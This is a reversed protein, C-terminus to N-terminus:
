CCGSVVICWKFGISHLFYSIDTFSVVKKGFKSVWLNLFHRFIQVTHRWIFSLRRYWKKGFHLIATKFTEKASLSFRGRPEEKDTKAVPDDFNWTNTSSEAQHEIEIDSKWFKLALKGRRANSGIWNLWFKAAFITLGNENVNTVKLSDAVAELCPIDAISTESKNQM